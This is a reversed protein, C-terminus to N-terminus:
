LKYRTHRTRYVTPDLIVLEPALILVYCLVAAPRAQLFGCVQDGDQVPPGGVHKVSGRFSRRIFFDKLDQLVTEPGAGPRRM